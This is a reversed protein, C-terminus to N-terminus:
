ELNVRAVNTSTSASLDLRTDRLVADVGAVNGVVLMVPEVIEFTEVTGAKALRSALVSGNRSKLEIWSDQHMVLKLLNDSAAKAADAVAGAISSSADKPDTKASEESAMEATAATSEVAPATPKPVDPAAQPVAEITTVAEVAAPLVAQQMSPLALGGWHFAAWGIGALVLAVLAATFRSGSRASAQMSPLRVKVLPESLSRRRRIAEIPSTADHEVTNLLPAADIQLLKAYNRIFGRAIMLNPLRELLDAELAEIQHPSLKLQAAVQEITWGRFMRQAMLQRGASAPVPPATGIGSEPEYSEIEETM